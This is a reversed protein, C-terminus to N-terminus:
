GKRCILGIEQKLGQLSETCTNVTASNSSPLPMSMGAMRPLTVNLLASRTFVVSACGSSGIAHHYFVVSLLNTSNPM